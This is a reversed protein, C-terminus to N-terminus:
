AAFAKYAAKFGDPATVSGDANRTCGQQDGSQNLPHIVGEVFKAGEELIASVMDPTAEAFGPLGQYRDLGVVHKLVYQTDKVPARYTAPM